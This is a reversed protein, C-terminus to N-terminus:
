LVGGFCVCLTRENEAVMMKQAKENETVRVSPRRQPQRLPLRMTAATWQPVQLQHKRAPHPGATGRRGETERAVRRHAGRRWCSCGM